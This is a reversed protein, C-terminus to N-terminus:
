HSLKFEGLIDPDIIWIKMFQTVFAIGKNAILVAREVKRDGFSRYSFFNRAQWCERSELPTGIEEKRANFRQTVERGLQIRLLWTTDYKLRRGPRQYSFRWGRANSPEIQSVRRRRAVQLPRTVEPFQKRLEALSTNCKAHDLSRPGCDRRM